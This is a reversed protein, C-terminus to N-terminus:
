RIIINKHENKDNVKSNQAVSTDTLNEKNDDKTVHNTHSRRVGYTSVTASSHKTLMQQLDDTYGEYYLGCPNLGETWQQSQTEM